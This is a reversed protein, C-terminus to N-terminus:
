RKRVVVVNTLHAGTHDEPREDVIEIYGNAELERLERVTSQFSQIDALSAGVARFDSKGESVQKFIQALRDDM